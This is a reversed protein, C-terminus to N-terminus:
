ASQRAGPASRSRTPSPPAPRRSRRAAREILRQVALETPPDSLGFRTADPASLLEVLHGLDQPTPERLTVQRAALTPLEAQWNPVDPRPM